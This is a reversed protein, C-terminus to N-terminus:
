RMRIPRGVHELVYGSVRSVCDKGKAVAGIHRSPDSASRPSSRRLKIADDASDLARWNNVIVCVGKELGLSEALM